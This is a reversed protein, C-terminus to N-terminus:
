GVLSKQTLIPREGKGDNKKNPMLHTLATVVKKEWEQKLPKAEWHRRNGQDEPMTPQLDKHNIINAM